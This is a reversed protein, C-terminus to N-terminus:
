KVDAASPVDKAYNLDYTKDLLPDLVTGESVDVVSPHKVPTKQAAGQATDPASVDAGPPAGARAESQDVPGDLLNAAAQASGVGRVSIGLDDLGPGVAIAAKPPTAVAVSDVDPAAASSPLKPAIAAVTAATSGIGLLPASDADAGFAPLAGYVAAGNEGRQDPRAPPQPIYKDVDAKDKEMQRWRAVNRQHQELTESFVHGGTGDAVFYLDQTRSPNAVAELSARGPNTIPGPPLGDILYTNYPSPEEVESKQIPHGLTGKGGVLGYVITPDSQLRMRKQLRNLFVAAIHPREDAKGTEKEVISALIVLEYPSHLALNSARRAWIQEVLRKQDEQMRRVLDARAMGRPIKYTEPLLTGEKPIERIDGMLLDNSRLRNVIQESTLGEPVTVLHLIQKGNVLTDIVDHMSASQRFLYEGARVRSRNGEILLTLNFLLPSDIVDEQELMGIIDPLDTGPAIFLVKDAPLPGPEQLRHAGWVVGFLGAVAVILLFSLLGSLASLTPRRRRPTPPPPPTEPQLAENPSQLKPRRSFFGTAAPTEAGSANEEKHILGAM